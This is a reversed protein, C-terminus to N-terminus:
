TQENIETIILCFGGPLFVHGGKKTHRCRSRMGIKRLEHLQRAIDQIFQKGDNGNQLSNTIHEILDHDFELAELRENLDSIENELAVLDIERSPKSTEPEVFTSRNNEISLSCEDTDSATSEDKDNYSKNSTLNQHISLDTEERNSVGQQNLKSIELKEPKANPMQSSFKSCSIQHLKKELCELCHSIYQKEEEFELISTGGAVVEDSAKSVESSKSNSFNNVTDTINHLCINQAMVNERKSDRGDEHMGQIMPKDTLDSNSKYYELEAELDQLEKEKETLLDNVKEFEENDYEAQEEMMRLYQLAEMQLAAKEEQLRTIMSMAEDAAIASANREEELEKHLAEMCKKDDEIQQKLRDVISEGEIENINNGDVSEIGSEMSNSNQLIQNGNSSSAEAHIEPSHIHNEPVVSSVNSGHLSSNQSQPSLELDEKVEDVEKSPPQEIFFGPVERGNTAVSANSTNSPNEQTPSMPASECVILDIETSAGEMRDIKESVKKHKESVLGTDQAQTVDVSKKSSEGVLTHIGDLTMLESLHAPLSNEFHGTIKCDESEIERNSVNAVVPSPSVVDLSILEPLDSSSSKQDAQPWNNEIVGNDNQDQQESIDPLPVHLPSSTNSKTPNLDSKDCKTPTESTSQANNDNGAEIKEHFVSRVDDDDSFPFESDSDSYLKLESYGVNYISRKGESESTIDRIKKFSDRRNLRSPRPPHPLPIYPKLVARGLSKLQVSRMGNHELKWIKGCCICSRSGMPGAFLDRSLSSNQFGSGGLVVGFKGALLRHTKTNRKTNITLSLLCNDCMKHGDVLKGHIHCLMMTSIESKHNNCFLNHYFNPKEGDLIHDLRSCLLCPLQLQCYSAFKKLVYSFLSDLLLLFILFWECAAFTLHDTFGEMRKTKVFSTESRYPAM